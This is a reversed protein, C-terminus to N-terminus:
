FRMGRAAEPALYPNVFYGHGIQSFDWVLGYDPNESWFDSAGLTAPDLVGEIGPITIVIMGEDDSGWMMAIRARAAELIANTEENGAGGPWSGEIALVLAMDANLGLLAGRLANDSDLPLTLGLSGLAADILGASQDLFMEIDPLGPKSSETWAPALRGARAQVDGIEAYAV